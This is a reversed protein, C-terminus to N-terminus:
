ALTNITPAGALGLRGTATSPGSLPFKASCELVYHECEWVVDGPAVGADGNKRIQFKKVTAAKFATEMLTFGNADPLSIQGSFAISGTILGPFVTEYNEDDKTTAPDTNRTLQIDLDQQGKIPNYTGAVAGEIWLKYKKGDLKM